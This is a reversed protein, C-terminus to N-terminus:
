AEARAAERQPEHTSAPATDNAAPIGRRDLTRCDLSLRHIAAPAGAGWVDDGLAIIRWDEYDAPGMTRTRLLVERVRIRAERGDAWGCCTLWRMIAVSLARGPRYGRDRAHAYADLAAEDASRQREAQRM